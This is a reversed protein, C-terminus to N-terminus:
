RHVRRLERRLLQAADHFVVGGLEGKGSQRSRGHAFDGGSEGLAPLVQGEIRHQQIRAGREPARDSRTQAPRATKAETAQTIENEAHAEHVARSPQEAHAALHYFVGRTKVQRLKEDSTHAAEAHETFHGEFNKRPASRRQGELQGCRRDLSRHIKQHLAGARAPFRLRQVNRGTAGIDHQSKGARLGRQLCYGSFNEGAEFAFSEGLAGGLRKPMVQTFEGPRVDIAREKFDRQRVGRNRRQCGRDCVQAPRSNM